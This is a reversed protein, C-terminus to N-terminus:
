SVPRPLPGEAKDGVSLLERWWLVFVSGLQESTLHRVILSARSPDSLRQRPCIPKLSSLVPGM